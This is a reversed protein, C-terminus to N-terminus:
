EDKKCSMKIGIQIYIIARLLFKTKKTDVAM